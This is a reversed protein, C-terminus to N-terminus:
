RRGNGGRVERPRPRPGDMPLCLVARRALLRRLAPADDPRDPRDPRVGRVETVGFGDDGGAPDRVDLM